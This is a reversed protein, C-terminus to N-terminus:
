SRRRRSMREVTGQVIRSRPSVLFYLGIALVIAGLYPAPVHNIRHGFGLATAIAGGLLFLCGLARGPGSSVRDPEHVLEATVVTEVTQLPHVIEAPEFQIIMTDPPAGARILVNRILPLGVDIDEVEVEIDCHSVYKGGQGEGVATGGGVIRGIQGQRQFADELPEEFREGREVPRIDGPISIRLHYPM